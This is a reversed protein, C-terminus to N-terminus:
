SFPIPPRNTESGSRFEGVFRSYMGTEVCYDVDEYFEPFPRIDLGEGVRSFITETPPYSHLMAEADGQTFRGDGGASADDLLGMVALVAMAVAFGGVRMLLRMTFSYSALKGIM